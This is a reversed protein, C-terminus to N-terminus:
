YPSQPRRRRPRSPAATPPRNGGNEIRRFLLTVSNSSSARGDDGGRGPRLAIVIRGSGVGGVLPLVASVSVPVVAQNVAVINFVDGDDALSLDEARAQGRTSIGWSVPSLAMARLLQRLTLMWSM